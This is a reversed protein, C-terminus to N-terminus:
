GTQERLGLRWNSGEGQFTLLWWLICTSGGQSQEEWVTELCNRWARWSFGALCHLNCGVDLGRYLTPCMYGCINGKTMTATVTPCCSTLCFAANFSVFHHLSLSHPPSLSQCLWKTRVPLSRKKLCHISNLLPSVVHPFPKVAGYFFIFQFLLCSSHPICHFPSIHIYSGFSGEKKVKSYELKREFYKMNM